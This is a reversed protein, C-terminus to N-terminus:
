YNVEIGFDVGNVFMYGLDNGPSPGVSNYVKLQNNSDRTASPRNVPPPTWSQIPVYGTVQGAADLVPSRIPAGNQTATLVPKLSPEFSTNSSARTIAGLWMGTYGVNLSIGKSLKYRGKLRWEGLPAFVFNHEATNTANQQGVGYIQVLLPPAAVPSSANTGQAVVNAFTYTSRFYDAGLAAPFNSGRYLTNQFNMGAVFRLDTEMTWRGREVQWNLGIEPGVINNYSSVDWGGNQLPIGQPRTAAQPFPYQLSTYDISYRDAVQLFKPGLSLRLSNLQGSGASSLNRRVTWAFGTSWLETSNVQTLNQSILHDPPPSTSEITSVILVNGGIFGGGAAIQQSFNTTPSNVAFENLTTFSQSQPGTDYYNFLMGYDDYVWGGEFRNGWAMTTRMWNTNLDLRLADSGFVYLGSGPYGAEILNNNLQAVAFPSLPQVPIFFDNLIPKSPPVTFAWYTRDYNFFLGERPSQRISYEHLDPPAFLQFDYFDQDPLLPMWNGGARAVTAAAPIAVAAALIAALFRKLGLTTAM